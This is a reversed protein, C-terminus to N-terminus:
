EGNAGQENGSVAMGFPLLGSSMPMPQTALQNGLYAQGMRSGVFANRAAPLSYGALGFAAGLAPDGQSLAYAAGGSGLGYSTLASTDFTRPFAGTQPLQGTVMTGARALEGLDRQGLVYSRRGQQVVANRLLQPSIIGAAVDEGSRSVATEIALYDQWQKRADAYLRMKSAQGTAAVSRNMADDLIGLMDKSANALQSDSSTSLKSLQSRWAKYQEGSVPSKTRSAMTIKETINRIIPAVNTRATVDSYATLADRAARVHQNTPTMRVGATAEDFMRGISQKAQEMVQPTARDADAGIRKLIARTFQQNQDAVVQTARPSLAERYKLAQNGTKQGATVDMGERRLAESASVRAPDTPNPTVVSRLANAALPSAIAATARAIPEADRGGVIPVADPVTKGETAMGAVESAVGPLVGLSLPAKALAGGPLFEGVNGAIRSVPNSGKYETAGGTMRGLTERLRLDGRGPALPNFHKNIGTITSGIRDQVEESAGFRGAISAAGDAVADGAMMPLDVLNSVGRTLGASLARGADNIAAGFREGPTDVAGRGVLNEYLSFRKPQDPRLGSVHEAAASLSPFQEYQGGGMDIRVPGGQYSKEFAELARGREILEKTAKINGAEYARRAGQRYQDVTFGLNSPHFPLTTAEDSVQIPTSSRPPNNAQVARFM